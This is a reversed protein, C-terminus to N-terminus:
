IRSRGCAIERAEIWVADPMTFRLSDQARWSRQRLSRGGLERIKRQACEDLFVVRVGPM